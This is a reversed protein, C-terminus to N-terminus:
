RPDGFNLVGVLRGRDDRVVSMGAIEARHMLLIERHPPSDMWAQMMETPTLDTGRVLAEGAWSLRCIHLVRHQDRHVLHGLHALHRAWGESLRDLCTAPRVPSQDHSRRAADIGVMVQQEYRGLDVRPFAAATPAVSTTALALVAIVCLVRASTPSM